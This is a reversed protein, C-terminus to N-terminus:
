TNVFRRNSLVIGELVTTKKTIKNGEIEISKIRFVEQSYITFPIIIILFTVVLRM